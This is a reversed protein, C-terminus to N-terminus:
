IVKKTFFNSAPSKCNEQTLGICNIFNTARLDNKFNLYKRM